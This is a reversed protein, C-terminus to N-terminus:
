LIDHRFILNQREDTYYLDSTQGVPFLIPIEDIWIVNDAQLSASSSRFVINNTIGSLDQDAGAFLFYSSIGNLCVQHELHSIVYNRQAATLVGQM